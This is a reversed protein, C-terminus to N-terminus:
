AVPEPSLAPVIQIRVGSSALRELEEMAMAISDYMDYLNKVEREPYVPVYWWGDRERIGPVLILLRTGLNPNTHNTLAGDVLKVIAAINENAV